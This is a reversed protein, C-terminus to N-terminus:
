KENFKCTVSSETKFEGGLDLLLSKRARERAYYCLSELQELGEETEELHYTEGDIILDFNVTCRGSAGLEEKDKVLNLINSVKHQNVLISSSDVTCGDPEPTKVVVVPAVTEERTSQGCGVLLVTFLLTILYKV